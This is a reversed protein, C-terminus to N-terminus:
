LGTFQDYFSSWSGTQANLASRKVSQGLHNLVSQLGSSVHPSPLVRAHVRMMMLLLMMVKVLLSRTRLVLFLGFTEPIRRVFSDINILM